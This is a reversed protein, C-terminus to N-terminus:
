TALRVRSDVTMTMTMPMTLTRETTGRARANPSRACCIAGRQDEGSPRQDDDMVPREQEAGGETGAESGPQQEAIQHVLGAEHWPAHCHQTEDAPGQEKRRRGCDQEAGVLVAGPRRGDRGHRFDGPLQRKADVEDDSPELRRGDESLPDDGFVPRYSLARAPCRSSLSSRAGFM